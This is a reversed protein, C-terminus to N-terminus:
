AFTELTAALGIAQRAPGLGGRLRGVVRFREGAFPGADVIIGDHERVDESPRCWAVLTAETEFGFLRQVKDTSVEDILLHVNQSLTAWTRKTTQDAAKSETARKVTVHSGRIDVLGALSM